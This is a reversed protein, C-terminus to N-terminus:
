FIGKENEPFFNCRGSIGHLERHKALFIIFKSELAVRDRM